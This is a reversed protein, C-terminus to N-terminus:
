KPDGKNGRIFAEPHRELYDGLVRISRAADGGQQLIYNLESDLMSNPEILKDASGLLTDANTLTGHASVLTQDLDVIAKQLNDGIEKYQVQGLKKLVNGVSVEIAEIKGPVTPLQV